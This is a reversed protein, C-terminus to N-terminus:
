PELNAVSSTRHFGCSRELFSHGAIARCLPFPGIFPSIKNVVLEDFDYISNMLMESVDSLGDEVVNFVVILSSISLKDQM